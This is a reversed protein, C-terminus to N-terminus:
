ARLGVVVGDSTLPSQHNSDISAVCQSDFCLCV